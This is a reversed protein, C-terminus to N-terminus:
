WDASAGGGGFDGGGGGWDSSSSSSSWSSGSSSSSESSSSSWSSSSSGSSGWFVGFFGPSPSSSWGSSGYTTSRARAKAARAVIIFVVLLGAAVILVVLAAPARRRGVSPSARPQTSPKAPSPPVAAKAGGTAGIIEEAVLAVAGDHDQARLRAKAAELITRARADPLQAELGYGVEIRMRRDSVALVFLVGDDRGREGGGWARAVRNAFDDIPEGSTSSVTLVAIQVGTAERHAVLRQAIREVAAASLVGAEDTVPRTIAPAARQALALAPLLVLLAFLL